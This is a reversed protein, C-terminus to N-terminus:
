HSPVDRSTNSSTSRQSSMALYRGPYSTRAAICVSLYPAPHPPPTSRHNVCCLRNIRSDCSDVMQFSWATFGLPMSSRHYMGLRARQRIQTRLCGDHKPRCNCSHRCSVLAARSGWMCTVFVGLACTICVTNSMTIGTM